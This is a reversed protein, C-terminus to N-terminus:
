RTQETVDGGFLIGIRSVGRRLHYVCYEYLNVCLNQIYNFHYPYPNNM